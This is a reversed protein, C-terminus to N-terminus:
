PWKLRFFRNGTAPTIVVTTNTGDDTPPVGASVWNGTKLDTSQQLAFATQSSPWVILVANNTTKMIRLTPAGPTQIAAFLGWFGSQVTYRGDASAATAPQGITGTVSYQSNTSTGGGSTTTHWAVDYQQACAALATALFSLLAKAARRQRSIRNKGGM